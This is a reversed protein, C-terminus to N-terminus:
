LGIRRAARETRRLADEATRLATRAAPRTTRGATRSATKAVAVADRATELERTMADNERESRAAAEEFIHDVRSTLDGLHVDEGAIGRKAMRAILAAVRTKEGATLRPEPKPKLAM